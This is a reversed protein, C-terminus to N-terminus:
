PFTHHGLPRTGGELARVLWEISIHQEVAGHFVSLDITDHRERRAHVVVCCLHMTLAWEM